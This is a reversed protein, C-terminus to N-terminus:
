YVFNKVTNGYKIEIKRVVKSVQARYLLPIQVNILDVIFKLLSFFTVMLVLHSKIVCHQGKQFEQKSIFNNRTKIHLM